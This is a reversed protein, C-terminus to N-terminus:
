SFRLTFLLLDDESPFKIFNENYWAGMTPDKAVFTGNFEKAAAKVLAIEDKCNYPGGKSSTATAYAVFNKLTREIIFKQEYKTVEVWKTRNKFYFVADTKKIAM